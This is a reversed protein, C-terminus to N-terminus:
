HTKNQIKGSSYMSIDDLISRCIFCITRNANITECQKVVAPQNTGVFMFLYSSGPFEFNNCPMRVKQPGPQM